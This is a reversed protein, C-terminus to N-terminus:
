RQALSWTPGDPTDTITIGAAALRDRVADATAFDKDARAQTRRELEAQVLADLAADAGSAQAGDEWELPDFGLVHAMARVQGALTRAEAEDGAALAKNGARVTTHIEALAKPVAIDDNMADAFGQTWEGLELDDFHGLFDEIRRYGAAAETLALQISPAVPDVPGGVSLDILGGEHAAARERVDAITDWPFDPLHSGLPTRAM